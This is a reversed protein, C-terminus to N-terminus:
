AIDQGDLLRDIRTLLCTNRPETRFQALVEFHKDNPQNALNYYAQMRMKKGRDKLTKLLFKEGEKQPDDGNQCCAGLENLLSLKRTLLLTGKKFWRVIERPPIQTTRSLKKM